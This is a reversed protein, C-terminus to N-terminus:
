SSGAAPVLLRRAMALAEERTRVRGDLQADEIAQLVRGFLPGPSQGMAILDEGTVLRPPSIQEEGFETRRRRVFEYNDLSGHSALCDLRHLELHEDFQPLRLFRKLTSDKMGPADKFRMHNEILAEVQRIDDNSFRLRHLIRGAIAIGEEVHGDFRIRDEVRFTAPKGADHLVVGLALTPSVGAPLKDLMLLTHTWVDGEPHFEPPQPVGKMAEVEPLLERLLGTRDLMEFGRRAGGETLIRVLEDRAREPAVATTLPHLRVIAAETESEIDFGLRAAFRVARLLRLHDERFRKEPDGIARILRLALDQRGGVFDLVEDTDPDLLLANITFDRRAVDQEPETEFTVSHPRRGDLYEHDSRYTAVEVEAGDQHVLLVGFHAGVQEARPYEALIQDPTASTAVDYDRPELGLLLDRVCGGVLYASHGRSRLTRAISRALSEAAPM